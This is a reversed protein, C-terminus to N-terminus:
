TNNQVHFIGTGDTSRITSLIGNGTTNSVNNDHIDLYLLPTNSSATASDAGTNIGASNATNNADIVNFAIICKSANGGSGSDNGFKSCAIGKGPVHHITNPPRSQGITFFGDSQHGVTVAIGNTGIGSLGPGSGTITNDQILLPSALSGITGGVPGAGTNGVLVQIGGGVPFNLITNNSISGATISAFNAGANNKNAYVSVGYGFSNTASTSSTFSNGTITLNAITGAFNLIDVGSQYSNNLTNNTISVTGSLNNETLGGANTNFAVNGDSATHATNVGDIVSNALTFDTVGTGRIGSLAINQIKVFNFSPSLTSTLSVRHRTTNQNTGGTCTSALSTCTGGNGVVILSGSAGTANLVIGNAAGNASISRFTLGGSGITTNAVNLATGTTTTITNV